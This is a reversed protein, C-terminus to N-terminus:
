RKQEPAHPAHTADVAGAPSRAVDDDEPSLPRTTVAPPDPDELLARRIIQRPDYQRPDLARWDVDNVEPGLEDRARDAFGRAVEKGQRVWAALTAAYAPLRTPGILMAAILGILLLKEITLGATM